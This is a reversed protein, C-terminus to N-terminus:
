FPLGPGFASRPPATGEESSTAWHSFGGDILEGSAEVVGLDQVVLRHRVQQGDLQVRVVLEQLDPRLLFLAVHPADFADELRDEGDLARAAVQDHLVDAELGALRFVADVLALFAAQREAYRQLHLQPQHDLLLVLAARALHHDAVDLLLFDVQTFQRHDRVLAGEEDVTGLAHDDRLQVTRRAHEEAVLRVRVAAPQEPRADDRVATRPDLEGGVDVVQQVHMDVALALLRGGHQQARQTEMRVLLDDGEEVLDLRDLERLRAGLLVLLELLRELAADQGAVQRAVAFFLREGLGTRDDVRQQALRDQVAAHLFELQHRGALDGQVLGAQDEVRQALVGAAGLVLRQTAEVAQQARAIGRVLFDGLGQELAQEEVLLAVVQGLHAAVLHVPAQRQVDVRLARRQRRGVEQRDRVLHDAQEQTLALDVVDVMEAITADARHTLQQGVLERHAEAAHRADDLLAHVQGVLLLREARRVQHVGAGHRRDDLREEAAALEALEHVLRVREALQRVLAAQRREPRATQMAVAGAELHAVHVIRVVPAHARDLRRFARVDAQDGARAVCARILLKPKM